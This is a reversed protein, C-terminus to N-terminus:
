VYEAVIRPRPATAGNLAKRGSEGGPRWSPLGAKGRVYDKCAIPDDGAFSHVLFGGPADERLEISLSRDQASHGPGPALIKGGAVEGRLAQALSALSPASMM